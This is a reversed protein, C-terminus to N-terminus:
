YGRAGKMKVYMVAAEGNVGYGHLTSEYTLGIAKYWEQARKRTALCLTEVRVQDVNELLKKLTKATQVTVERGYEDWARQNALFWTRWVNPGVPILGAVVMPEGTEEVRLTWKPGPASFLQVALSEVSFTEDSFAEIQEIEDRPLARGVVIADVLTMDTITTKM